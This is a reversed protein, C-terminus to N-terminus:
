TSHNKIERTLGDSILGNFSSSLGSSVVPTATVAVTVEGAMPLEDTPGDIALWSQTSQGIQLNTVTSPTVDTTWRIGENVGGTNTPSFLPTTTTIDADIGGSVGGGLNHRVEVSLSVIEVIGGTGNADIIEQPTLEILNLEPNPDVAIVPRVELETQGLTPIGGGVPTASVWLNLVDGNANRESPNLPSSIPAPLLM